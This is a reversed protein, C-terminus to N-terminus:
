CGEGPMESSQYGVQYCNKERIGAATSLAGDSVQHNPKETLILAATICEGRLVPWTAVSAKKSDM